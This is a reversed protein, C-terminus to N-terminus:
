NKVGAGLLQDEVHRASLVVAREMGERFRTLYVERNSGVFASVRDYANLACMTRFGPDSMYKSIGRAICAEDGVTCTLGSLENEFLKTAIGVTTTLVPLKSAAAELFTQGYGEFSSTVLFMDATKMHSRIDNQWHEFLVQKELGVRAVHKMLRPLEPGDGVIVLGAHPYQRLTAACADIAFAINKSTVLRSAMLIIFSFQPYREHLNFEPEADRWSGLDTYIPLVDIKGKMSPHRHVVQKELAESVVRIQDARPLLFHAILLRIWNLKQMSRFYPEYLDTHVQLQLARGFRRAIVYGALGTEFPDQTSVVDARFDGSFFLQRKAVRYADYVYLLKSSSNTPYAWVNDSLQLGEFEFEDRTFVVIHLEAFLAGYSVIRQHVASGVTFINQDTSIMLVRVKERNSEARVVKESALERVVSEEIPQQRKVSGVPSVYTQLHEDVVVVEDVKEGLISDIETDLSKAARVSPDLLPQKESM